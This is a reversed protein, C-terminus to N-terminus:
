WQGQKGDGGNGRVWQSWRGIMCRREKIQRDDVPMTESRWKEEKLQSDNRGMKLRSKPDRGLFMSM